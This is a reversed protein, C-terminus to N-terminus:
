NGSYRLEQLLFIQEQLGQLFGQWYRNEQYFPFARKFAEESYRQGIWAAFRIIRLTRLPEELILSSHDFPRFLEYGEIFLERQQKKEEESGSFLMWIDQIPPALLMDDFDLLHPGDKNWLINGLHCDGHVAIAKFKGQFFPKTLEIARLLNGEINEKLEAPLYSQSLIIELSKEGYTQPDLSIRHKLPFKDGINHLRSLTRGMWRRDDNSIEDRAKGRFKPYFCYFIGETQSLTSVEPLHNQLSLPSVVPIEQEALKEIFHHEEAIAHVDWRRPRYYKAIIPDAEELAIEYVRNEYSNLQILAGTPQMGQDSVTTLITEPLLAAFHLESPISM